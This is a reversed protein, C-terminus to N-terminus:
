VPMNMIDHYASVLRNRVQVAFQLSLNAEQLAVMTSELSVGEANAQYAQSLREANGQAADARELAEGLAKLFDAGGAPAAPAAGTLAPAAFSVADLPSIATM